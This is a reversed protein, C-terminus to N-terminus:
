NYHRTRLKYDPPSTFEGEDNVEYEDEGEYASHAGGVCYPRSGRKAAQRRGRNWREWATRISARRNNRDPSFACNECWLEGEFTMYNEENCNHCEIPSERAGSM